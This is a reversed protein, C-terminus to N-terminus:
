AANSRAHRARDLVGEGCLIDMYRHLNRRRHTASQRIDVTYYGIQHYYLIRARAAAEAAGYGLAAFLTQLVAMRERDVREVAWRARKDSRAWGRVALDFQPDYGRADILRVTARDLWDAAGNATPPVPDDPLFRCGSEWYDLLQVLLKDRSKFLHHFGGRTVNMREALRTVRLGAIGQEILCAKATEIWDRGTHVPKPGAM